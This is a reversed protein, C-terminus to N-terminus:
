GELAAPNAMTQGRGIFRARDTEYSPTPLRARRRWCTITWPPKTPHAADGRASSRRDTRWSRPRCSSIASYETLSTPTLPALVVEAYSTVEIHRRHSSLNTLTVRRIEVDDEPSVSIETHTEIAHHRRRYQRAGARLDSRLSRGQAPDASLGDVLLTRQRPRAPLHMHGLQREHCGGRALSHRGPQALPQLRWPCQDGHRPVQRQVAPSGRTVAYQPRHIRAHHRSSGHRGPARRRESRGRATAAYAGEARAGAAVIGDGAGAPDAMFRRQMAPSSGGHVAIALLSMGQHHAMFTRVIAHEMGPPVRSATYDIAEYFGYVGLFGSAALTRLNRCAREPNVTLASRAAYPAIVLDDGLGRKFRARTSRVSSISLYPRSDTANYCSESVGWPVGRQRAYEIHRSFAGAAKCTQDLLTNEYSPMMLQPM